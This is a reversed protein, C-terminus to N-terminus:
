SGVHEGFRDIARRVQYCHILLVTRFTRSRMLNRPGAVNANHECIINLVSQEKQNPTEKAPYIPGYCSRHVKAIPKAQKEAVSDIESSIM